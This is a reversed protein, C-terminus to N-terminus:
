NLNLPSIDSLMRIPYIFNYNATNTGTDYSESDATNYTGFTFYGNCNGNWGWNIHLSHSEGTMMHSTLTYGGDAYVKEYKDKYYILDKYGDVVWGHGEGNQTYGFMFIPKDANLSNKIKDTDALIIGESSYTYGFHNLVSVIKNPSAGSSTANYSTQSQVGLERMLAGIHNHATNCTLTGSHTATHSKMGTWNLTITENTQFDNGMDCSCVLSTPKKFICFIQAVATNFCGAIGNPCYQGYIDGQGWRISALLPNKYTGVSYTDYYYYVEPANIGYQTQTLDDIISQMYLDFPEVGTPEGISYNGNETIAVLPPVNRNAAVISFGRNDNFNFVYLVTDQSSAKTPLSFTQTSIIKRENTGKTQDDEDLLAIASSAISYAESVSRITSTLPLPAKVSQLLIENSNCSIAIMAIFFMFGLRKM